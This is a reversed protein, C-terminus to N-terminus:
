MDTVASETESVHQSWRDKIEHKEKGTIPQQFPLVTSLTCAFLWRCWGMQKLQWSNKPPPAHQEDASGLMDKEVEKLDIHHEKMARQLSITLEM